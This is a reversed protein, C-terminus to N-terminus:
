NKFGSPAHVRRELPVACCAAVTQLVLAAICARDAQTDPCLLVTLGVQPAHADGPLLIALECRGDDAVEQVVSKHAYRHLAATLAEVDMAAMGQTARLRHVVATRELPQLKSLMLKGLAANTLPLARGLAVGGADAWGETHVYRMHVGDRMGVVTPCSVAEFIKRASRAAVAMVGENLMWSGLLLVRATPLYARRERIYHLYGSEQLRRLLVSTSSQPIGALSSVEGVALPRRLASFLELIMLTREASSSGGEGDRDLANAAEKHWCHVRAIGEGQSARRHAGRAFQAAASGGENWVM